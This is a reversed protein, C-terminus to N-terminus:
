DLKTNTITLDKRFLELSKYFEPDVGEKCKKEHWTRAARESLFQIAVAGRKTCWEYVTSTVSGLKNNAM